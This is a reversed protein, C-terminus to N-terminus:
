AAQGMLVQIRAEAAQVQLACRAKKVQELARRVRTLAAESLPATGRAVEQMEGMDGNCHLAVDCGASLAQAAREAFGGSLARMSLDDSILLGKFGIQERVYRLVKPSLTAPAYPDLATYVVHATMAAPMDALTRFPVFDTAELEALPTDVVPLEEHSDALARGHGPIHKVIPIVGGEMLGRAAAAALRAVQEPTYGFARDGIIDHAGDIRLDAVPACDVNIGLADLEQAILAHNLCSAEEAAELNREGMRAFLGAPPSKRWHPPKLRAVRGGEQDILVLCYPHSVCSKLQQVLSQVQEPHDCNRAFLIFGLPNHASFFERESASLETGECGYIAASIPLNAQPLASM